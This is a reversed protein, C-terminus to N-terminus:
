QLQRYFKGAFRAYKGNLISYALDSIAIRTNVIIVIILIYSSLAM